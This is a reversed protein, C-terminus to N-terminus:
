KPTLVLNHTASDCLLDKSESGVSSSNLHLESFRNVRESMSVQPSMSHRRLHEKTHKQWQSWWLGWGEIIHQDLIIERAM